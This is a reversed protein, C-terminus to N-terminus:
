FKSLVDSLNVQKREFTRANARGHWGEFWVTGEVLDIHLTGVDCKSFPNTRFCTMYLHSPWSSSNHSSKALKHPKPQEVEETAKRKLGIEKNVTPSFLDPDEKPLKLTITPKITPKVPRTETTSIISLGSAPPQVNRKPMPDTSVTQIRGISMEPPVGEVVRCGTSAEPMTQTFACATMSGTKSGELGQFQWDVVGGHEGEFTIRLAGDNKFLRLSLGVASTEPGSELIAVTEDDIEDVGDEFDEENLVYVKPKRNPREHLLTLTGSQLDHIYLALGIFKVLFARM